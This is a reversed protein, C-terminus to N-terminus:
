LWIYYLIIIIIFIIYYLIIYYLIIDYLIINNTRQGQQRCHASWPERSLAGAHRWVAHGFM